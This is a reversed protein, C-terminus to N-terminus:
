YWRDDKEREGMIADVNKELERCRHRLEEHRKSWYREIENIHKLTWVEQEAKSIAKAREEQEAKRFAKAVEEQVRRNFEKKSIIM